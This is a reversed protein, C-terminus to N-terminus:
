GNGKKLKSLQARLAANEEAYERVQARLNDGGSMAKYYMDSLNLAALVACTLSSFSTKSKLEGIKRDVLEANKRIYEETEEGVVTYEMGDITVIVRNVMRRVGKM